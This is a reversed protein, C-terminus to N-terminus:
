KVKTLKYITFKHRRYKQNRDRLFERVGAITDFFQGEYDNLNPPDNEVFYKM